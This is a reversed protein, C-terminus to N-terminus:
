THIAVHSRRFHDRSKVIQGVRTPTPARDISRDAPQAGLSLRTAAEPEAGLRPAEVFPVLVQVTQVSVSVRASVVDAGFAAGRVRVLSFSGVGVLIRLGISSQYTLGTM